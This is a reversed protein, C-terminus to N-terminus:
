QLLVHTGVRLLRWIIKGDVKDLVAFKESLSGHKDPQAKCQNRSNCGEPSAPSTPASELSRGGAVHQLLRDAKSACHCNGVAVRPVSKRNGDLQVCESVTVSNQASSHSRQKSSSISHGSEVEQDSCCSIVSQETLKMDPQSNKSLEKDSVNEVPKETSGMYNKDQTLAPGKNFSQPEYHGFSLVACGDECAAEGLVFNWEESPYLDVWTIGVICYGDSPIDGKLFALVDSHSSVM